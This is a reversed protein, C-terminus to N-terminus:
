WFLVSIICFYYKENESRLTGSLFFFSCKILLKIFYLIYKRLKQRKNTWFVDTGNGEQM